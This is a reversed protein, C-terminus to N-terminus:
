EKLKSEQFADSGYWCYRFYDLCWEHFKPDDSYFMETLNADGELTPFSVCAEKENLVVITKVNKRMKREVKGEQILKEYGLKKLLNKRGKPVIANELLIGNYMVGNKIKKILPEILDIPVESSIKYIYTNANKYITKWHELVKTVGKAHQGSSLQGIRQIFKDPIGGFKHNEFYKRNKSLFILAPVQSCMTKGYTTVGYNGDKNKAILGGDELRMFNRHVEQNTAKLHKAMNSIKSKKELLNFLIELRQHSSLELFNEAAKEYLDEM